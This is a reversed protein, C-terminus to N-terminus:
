AIKQFILIQINKMNMILRPEDLPRIQCEESLRRPNTQFFVRPPADHLLYLFPTLLNM